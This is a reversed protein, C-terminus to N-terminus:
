RRCPPVTSAVKAPDPAAVLLAPVVVSLPVKPVVLKTTLPPVILRPESLRNSFLMATESLPPVRPM